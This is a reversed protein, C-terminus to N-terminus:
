DNGKERAERLREEYVQEAKQFQDFVHQKEAPTRWLNPNETMTRLKAIWKLFYEASEANRIKQDGVYVRICSTLAMSFATPTPAFVDDGEAVVAFWGSADVTADESFSLTHADSQPLLEKWVMGNHYILVKRLPTISQAKGELHVPHPGKAAFFITDGPVKGDARFDILPGSTMYTHGQRIATLWGNVTFNSDLYAYTRTLGLPRRDQVNGVTDEGGVPAVRFDNNWAHFAPILSARTVATWELFDTLGLALDIPFGRAEGLDGQLPDTDLGFAHVYGTVAGQARAKVFMDSNSPYLSDLATGEYGTLFPSLLHDRLGLFSIHGWFPPRYEEGFMLLMRGPIDSGPYAAGGKHFYQWDLIRNDKNAVLDDIINLGEARGMMMLHEPTNHFNGGYNMHAHTTGNFWGAASPNVIRKLSIGVDVMEGPRVTVQRTAPIYEFGKTVVITMPGAPAEVQYSGNTYFVRKILAQFHSNMVEVNRPAYLRGDAASGEIRAAVPTGTALDRVTVQVTGMPQKWHLKETVLKRKAGGYTELLYLEPLGDENSIYAISQGDPSWRPHFDDHDGFTLKYPQGGTIPLVYLHDFQEAAGGTSSYVVRKGDPSVDPQTRFLSQEDLIVEANAMADAQLPVRWLNGTGLAVGRNSVLLLENGDKLWAPEIHLDGDGFYLRPRGFSHDRTVTLENGAWAGDRIPRAAVNLYGNPNSTVYALWKGNPSFVPDTYVQDDQTLPHTEGTAENLIELQISKWQDEVTYVLWKGDPSWTPTSDLKGGHTLEYAENTSVNVKWISGYLSFAIWKGDPSFRPYVERAKHDTLRQVASGDENATWIDGLYSFAVKGNSYTPHRLLRAHASPSAPSAPAAMAAPSAGLALVLLLIKKMLYRATRCQLLVLPRHCACRETGVGTLGPLCFLRGPASMSVPPLQRFYAGMLSIM